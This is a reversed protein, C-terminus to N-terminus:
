GNMKVEKKTYAWLLDYTWDLAESFDKFRDTDCVYQQYSDGLITTYISDPDDNSRVGVKCVVSMNNTFHINAYAPDINTVAIVTFYDFRQQDIRVM